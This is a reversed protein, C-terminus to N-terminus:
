DIKHPVVIQLTQKNVMQLHFLRLELFLWNKLTFVPKTTIRYHHWKLYYLYLWYNQYWYFTIPQHLESSFVSIFFAEDYPIYEWNVAKGHNSPMYRIFWASDRQVSSKGLKKLVNRNILFKSILKRM